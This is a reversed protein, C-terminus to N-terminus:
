LPNIWPNKERLKRLKRLERLEREDGRVGRLLAFENSVSKLQSIPNGSLCPNGPSRPKWPKCTPNFVAVGGSCDGPRSEL